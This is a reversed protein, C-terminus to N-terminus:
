LSVLVNRIAVENNKAVGTSFVKLCKIKKDCFVSFSPQDSLCSVWTSLFGPPFGSPQLWFSPCQALNM